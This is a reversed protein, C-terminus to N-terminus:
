CTVEPDRGLPRYLVVPAHDSRLVRHLFLDHHSSSVPFCVSGKWCVLVVEVGGYPERGKTEM